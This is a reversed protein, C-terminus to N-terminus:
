ATLSRRGFLLRTEDDDGLDAEDLEAVELVSQLNALAILRHVRRSAKVIRLVQNRCRARCHLEVLLGLGAADMARIEGLDLMLCAENRAAAMCRLIEVEVGLVIRGSCRLTAAHPVAHIEIKLMPIGQVV